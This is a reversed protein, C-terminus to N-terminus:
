LGTPQDAVVPAALSSESEIAELLMEAIDQVKVEEDKGEGKVGDDMM